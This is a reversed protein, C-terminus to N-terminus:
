GTISEVAARQGQAPKPREPASQLSHLQAYLGGKALLAQHTGVEVIRGQQMIVIRDAHEITSLRHAIILTTRGRRLTELALQVEREAASDLASTAEDFVLLPANKFLARAIALRQRQGGSLRVGNEGILTDLGEPLQEIFEIAHAAKAAALIEAKSAQRLAGYAINAAVTDNFLIVEQSVVAIQARLESLRLRSIDIGDLLIQGSEPRYFRPILNVLSTKGSGSPGVLALTEGPAVRLSVENLTQKGSGYSFNVQRLELAGQALPLSTEGTDEEAPEDLLAFVSEAAALGRQLRENIGTLRKLPAFLLAMAGIFSVFGGITFQDQASQLSAIYIIFALALVAVLQVLPVNAASTTALKIRYRRARNIAKLFRQAEYDQAGFVKIVKHGKIAEELLQTIEGMAQQVSRSLARLRRSVLKIALAILPAVGLAILTLRWNLYLMWALLGVITLSDRVLVTWVETAAAAVQEVDFTLKSILRGSPHTDYFPTPLATLRRFMGDRLNMVVRGAVWQTAVASTFSALGRLFFLAILLLPFLHMYSPDKHVFSGDLMPKLLAPIAPETVAGVVLAALALLFVKWYPLVHRLLRLYLVRNSM